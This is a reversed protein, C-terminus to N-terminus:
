TVSSTDRGKLRRIKHITSAARCDSQNSAWYKEISSNSNFETHENKDYDVYSRVQREAETSHLTDVGRSSNVGDQTRVIMAISTVAFCCCDDFAKVALLPFPDMPIPAAIKDRWTCRCCLSDTDTPPLKLAGVVVSILYPAVCLALVLLPTPAVHM